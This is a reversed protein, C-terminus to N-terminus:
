RLDAEKIKHLAKLESSNELKLHIEPARSISCELKNPSRSPFPKGFRKQLLPIYRLIPWNCLVEKSAYESVADPRLHYPLMDEPLLKRLYENSKEAFSAKKTWEINEQSTWEKNGMYTVAEPSAKQQNEEEKEKKINYKKIIIIRQRQCTNWNSFNNVDKNLGGM